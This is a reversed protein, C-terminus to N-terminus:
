KKKKIIEIAIGAVTIIVSVIDLPKM